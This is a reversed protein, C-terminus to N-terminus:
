GGGDGGGDGGGGGGGGRLLEEVLRLVCASESVEKRLSKLSNLHHWAPAALAAAAASECFSRVLPNSEEGRAARAVLHHLATRPKVREGCVECAVASAAAAAM